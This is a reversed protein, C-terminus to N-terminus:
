EQPPDPQQRALIVVWYHVHPSEWRYHYGVGFEDQQAFYPDEGLLLARHGGSFTFHEFVEVASDYGGAAVEVQNFGNFLSWLPYGQARLYDNPGSGDALHHSVEGAKALMRVRDRAVRALLPHCRLAPRRQERDSILLQALRQEQPSLRCDALAPHLASVLILTTLM